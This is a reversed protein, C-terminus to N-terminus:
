AQRNYQMKDYKSWVKTSRFGHREFIGIHRKHVLASLMNEDHFDEIIRDLLWDIVRIDDGSIYYNDILPMAAGTKVPIFGIVQDQEMALYWIHSRSTKFPYNNNQRIIAPNMVLPAVLEYLQKDVGGLKVINM